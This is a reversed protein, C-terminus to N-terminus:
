EVDIPCFVSTSVEVVVGDEVNSGSGAGDWELKEEGVETFVLGDEAVWPERRHLWLYVPLSSPDVVSM